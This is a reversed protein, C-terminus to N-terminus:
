KTIDSVVTEAKTTINDSVSQIKSADKSEYKQFVTYGVFGVGLCVIGGIIDFVVHLM